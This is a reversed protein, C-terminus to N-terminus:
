PGRSGYSADSARAPVQIILRVNYRGTGVSDSDSKPRALRLAPSARGPARSAEMQCSQGLEITFAYLCSILMWVPSCRQSRKEGSRVAAETADQRLRARSQREDATGRESSSRYAAPCQMSRRGAWLDASGCRRSLRFVKPDFSLGRAIPYTWRYSAYLMAAVSM